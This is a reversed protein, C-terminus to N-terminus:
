FKFLKKSFLSFYRTIVKESPKNQPTYAYDQAGGTHQHDYKWEWIFGGKFWSKYFFSDFIAKFAIAQGKLNVKKSYTDSWTNVTVFDRSCYGFETFLIQKSYRKSINEIAFVHKRWKNLLNDETPTKEKSLPFYADIGIFDLESWFPVMYYDDWNSAYTLKGSYVKRIQAILHNFFPARKKISERLETAFCFVDVNEQEAIQAMELVYKSFNEQWEQWDREHKLAFHGVYYSEPIWLQPKLMVKFGNKKAERIQRAVGKHTEGWWQGPLDYTISSGNKEALAYPVISVFNANVNKVGQFDLYASDRPAELHLGCIKQAQITLYFCGGVFLVVSLLLYAIVGKCSM